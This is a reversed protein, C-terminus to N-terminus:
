TSILSRRGKGGRKMQMGGSTQNVKKKKKQSSTQTKVTAQKPKVRSVVGAIFAQRLAPNFM